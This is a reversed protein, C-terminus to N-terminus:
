RIIAKARDCRYHRSLSLPDMQIAPADPIQVLAIREAPLAAVPEIPNCRVFMHFSDLV